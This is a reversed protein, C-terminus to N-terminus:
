SVLKEHKLDFSSHFHEEKIKLQGAKVAIQFLQPINEAESMKQLSKAEDKSISFGLDNLPGSELIVNYRLYTLLPSPTLLDDKLDGIKMNFYRPTKSRSIWLLFLENQRCAGMMLMNPVEKAWDLLRRDVINEPKDKHRGNGTGISFIMLDDEGTKWRFPFGKITTVMFLQLAPNNAMSVGGHVSLIRKPGPSKLRQLLRM